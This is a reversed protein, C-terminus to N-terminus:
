KCAGLHMDDRTAAATHCTREAIFFFVVFGRQGDALHDEEGGDALSHVVLVVTDRGDDRCRASRAPLLDEVACAYM